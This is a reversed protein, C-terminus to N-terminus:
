NTFAVMFAAIIVTRKIAARIVTETPADTDCVAVAIRIPDEWGILM